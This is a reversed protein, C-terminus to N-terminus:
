LSRRDSDPSLERSITIILAFQIVKSNELHTAKGTRM